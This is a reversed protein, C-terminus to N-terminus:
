NIVAGQDDCYGLLKVINDHELHLLIELEQKFAQNLRDSQSHIKVAGTTSDPYQALYVTSFGGYGIVSSFNMTYKQMQDWTYRRAGSKISDNGELHNDDKISAFKDVIRKRRLKFKLFKLFSALCM